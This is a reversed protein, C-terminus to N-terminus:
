HGRHRQEKRRGKEKRCGDHVMGTLRAPNAYGM